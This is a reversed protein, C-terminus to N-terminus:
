DWQKKIEKAKENLFDIMEKPCIVNPLSRNIMMNLVKFTTEKPKTIDLGFKKLKNKAVKESIKM